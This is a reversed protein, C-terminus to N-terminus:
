RARPMPGSESPHIPLPTPASAFTKTPHLLDTVLSAFLQGDFPKRLARGPGAGVLKQTSSDIPSSSLLVVPLEPFLERIALLLDRGAHQEGIDLDLVLLALKDGVEAFLLRGARPDATVMVVCDSQELLEEAEDSLDADDTIVVVVPGKGRNRKLPWSADANEDEEAIPLVLTFTTGSGVVSDVIVSGGHREVAGLVMALGLGTGAGVTKTTFFPDFIQALVDPPIGTGEDRVAIIATRPPQPVARHSGTLNPNPTPMAGDGSSSAQLMPIPTLSPKRPQPTTLVDMLSSSGAGSSNNSRQALEEALEASDCPLTSTALTVTINGGNPMADVANFVLNTIAQQFLLRDVDISADCRLDTRIQIGSPLSRGLVPLLQAELLLRVNSRVPQFTGQRTYTLLAGTISAAAISSELIRQGYRQGQETPVGDTLLEALGRIPTLINNLEHALGSAMTGVTKLRQVHTLQARSAELETAKNALRRALEDERERLAQTTRRVTTNVQALATDIALSIGIPICVYAALLIMSYSGHANMDDIAIPFHAGFLLLATVAYGTSVLTWPTPLLVAIWLNTILITGLIGAANVNEHVVLAGNMGAIATGLVLVPNLRHERLLLGALAFGAAIASWLTTATKTQPSFGLVLVLTFFGLIGFAVWLLIQALRKRFAAVPAPDEIM